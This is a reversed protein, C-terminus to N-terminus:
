APGNRQMLWECIGLCATRGDGGCATHAGAAVVPLRLLLLLHARAPWGPASHHQSREQHVRGRETGPPGHGAAHHSSHGGGAAAAGAAGPDTRGPPGGDAPPPAPLMTHIIQMSKPCQTHAVTNLVIHFSPAIGQRSGELSPLLSVLAAAPTAAPWAVTNCSICTAWQGHTSIQIAESAMRVPCSPRTPRLRM